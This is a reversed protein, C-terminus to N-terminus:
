VSATARAGPVRSFLGPNMGQHLLMVDLNKEVSVVVYEDVVDHIPNVVAQRTAAASWPLKGSFLRGILTEPAIRTVRLQIHRGFVGGDREDVNFALDQM